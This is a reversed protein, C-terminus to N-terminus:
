KRAKGKRAILIAVFIILPLLFVPVEPVTFTGSGFSERKVLCTYESSTSSSSNVIYATINYQKNLPTSISIRWNGPNVADDCTCAILDTAEGDILIRFQPNTGSNCMIPASGLNGCDAVPPSGASPSIYTNATINSIDDNFLTPCSMFVSDAAAPLALALLCLSVVLARSLEMM